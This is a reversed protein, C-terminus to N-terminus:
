VRARARACVCVCVCVCVGFLEDDDHIYGVGLPSVDNDTENLTETCDVDVHLLPSPLHGQASGTATLEPEHLWENAVCNYFDAKHRYFTSKSLFQTCHGCFLKDRVRKVPPPSITVESESDADEISSSEESCSDEM